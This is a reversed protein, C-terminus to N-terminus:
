VQDEIIETEEIIRQRELSVIYWGGCNNRMFAGLPRSDAAMATM